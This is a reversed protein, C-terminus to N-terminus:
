NIRGGARGILECSRKDEEHIQKATEKLKNLIFDATDSKFELYTKIMRDVAWELNVATPRSAKLRSGADKISKFNLNQEKNLQDAHKLMGYAAVIGIAPAGRVMLDKISHIVDALSNLSLYIFKEPLEKQNIIKLTNNEFVITELNMM